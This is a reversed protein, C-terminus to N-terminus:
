FWVGLPVYVANIVLLILVVSAADFFPLCRFKWVCVVLPRCLFIFSFRDLKLLIGIACCCFKSESILNVLFSLCFLAFCSAAFDCFDCLWDCSPVAFRCYKLVLSPFLEFSTNKILSLLPLPRPFIDLPSYCIPSGSCLLPWIWWLIWWNLVLKDLLILVDRKPPDPYTCPAYCLVLPLPCSPTVWAPWPEIAARPWVPRPRVPRVPKVVKPAALVVAFVLEIIALLLLPMCFVELWLLKSFLRTSAWSKVTWFLSMMLSFGFFFCDRPTRM